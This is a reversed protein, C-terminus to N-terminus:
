SQTKRDQCYHISAQRSSNSVQTQRSQSRNSAHRQQGVVRAPKCGKCRTLHRGLDGAPWLGRRQPLAHPSCSVQQGHRRCQRTPSPPLVHLLAFAHHSCASSTSYSPNGPILDVLMSQINPPPPGRIKPAGSLDGV